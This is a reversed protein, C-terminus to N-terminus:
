KCGYLHVNRITAIELNIATTRSMQDIAGDFIHITKVIDILRLKFHANCIVGVFRDTEKCDLIKLLDTIATTDPYIPM